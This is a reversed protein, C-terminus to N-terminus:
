NTSPVFKTKGGMQGIQYNLDQIIKQLQGKYQIEEMTGTPAANWQKVFDAHENKLKTVEPNEQPKNKEKQHKKYAPDESDELNMKIPPSSKSKDEKEKVTHNKPDAKPHKKLYKQKEEESGFETADKLISDILDSQGSQKLPQM